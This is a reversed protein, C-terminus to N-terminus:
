ADGAASDANAPATLVALATAYLDATREHAEDEGFGSEMYRQEVQALVAVVHLSMVELRWRPLGPLAGLLLDDLIAIGEPYAEGTQLGSPLGSHSLRQLFRLYWSRGRHEHVHEALPRVYADILAPPASARGSERLATVLEMRRANLPTRRHDLLATILGERTGFHYQVASNNRQGAAAGIERLPVDFGRESFLREASLLIETRTSM